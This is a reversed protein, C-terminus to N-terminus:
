LNEIAWRQLRGDAFNCINDEGKPGVSSVDGPNGAIGDMGFTIIQFTSPNVFSGGAWYAESGSGMTGYSASDRYAFLLGTTVDGDYIVDQPGYAQRYELIAGPFGAGAQLSAPVDVTGKKCIEDPTNGFLQELKFDYLVDREIGDAGFNHAALPPVGTSWSSTDPTGTIPYQRSKCIGCLWFVLSSNQDLYQGVETWWHELRTRGAIGSPSNEAHNPSIRNVYRQFQAFTLGEFSPPYFGYKTNFEHIQQDLQKMEMVVTAEKASSLSRMVVPTLMGVLIAIVVMAVLLEVLTFADRPHNSLNKSPCSM